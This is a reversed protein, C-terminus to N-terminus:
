STQLSATPKRGGSLVSQFLEILGETSVFQIENFASPLPYVVIGIILVFSQNEISLTRLNVAIGRPSPFAFQKNPTNLLFINISSLKSIFIQGPLNILRAFKLM